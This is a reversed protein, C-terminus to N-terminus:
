SMTPNLFITNSIDNKIFELHNGDIQPIKSALTSGISAFYENFKNAFQLTKKIDTKASEFKNM